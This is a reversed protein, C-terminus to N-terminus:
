QRNLHTTDDLDLKGDVNKRPRRVIPISMFDAAAVVNNSGLEEKAEEVMTEIGVIHSHKNSSQLFTYRPSFHTLALAKAGSLRACKAAELSTSHGKERALKSLKSDFSSEHVMLDSNKAIDIIPSSDTTDYVVAIKRGPDAPFMYKKGDIKKGNPLTIIKGARVHDYIPSPPLGEKKLAEVNMRPKIKEEVVYGFTRMYKKHPMLVAKVTYDDTECVHYIGDHDPKITKIHEKTKEKMEIQEIPFMPDEMEHFMVQPFFKSAGIDQLREFYAAMGRPGYIEIPPISTDQKASIRDFRVHESAAVLGPLGFCHDGHLHSIFVKTIDAATLRVCKILQNITGEGCDFMLSGKELRVVFSTANRFSTPMSGSTGLFIAEMGVFPDSKNASRADRARVRNELEVHNMAKEQRYTSPNKGQQFKRIGWSHRAPARSAMRRLLIAAMADRHAKEVRSSGGFFETKKDNIKETM